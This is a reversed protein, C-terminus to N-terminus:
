GGFTAEVKQALQKMSDIRTTPKPASPGASMLKMHVIYTDGHQWHVGVGESNSAEVFGGNRGLSAVREIIPPDPDPQGNYTIDSKTVVIDPGRFTAVDKLELRLSWTSRDASDHVWLCENGASPKKVAPKGFLATADSQTVLACPDLEVHKATPQDARECSACLLVCAGFWTTRPM